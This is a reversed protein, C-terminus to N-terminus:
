LAQSVSRGSERQGIHIVVNLKISGVEQKLGFIPSFLYHGMEVIEYPSYSISEIKNDDLLTELEIRVIGQTCQLLFFLNITCTFKDYRWVGIQTTAKQM